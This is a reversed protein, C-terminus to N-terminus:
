SNVNTAFFSLSDSSVTEAVFTEGIHQKARSNIRLLILVSKYIGLAGKTCRNMLTSDIIFSRGGM